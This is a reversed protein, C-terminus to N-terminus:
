KEKQQKHKQTVDSFDTSLGIVLSAAVIKVTDPRVKLDKIWESSIKTPPILYPDLKIKQRHNDLKRLVM